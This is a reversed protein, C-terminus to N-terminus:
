AHELKLLYEWHDSEAMINLQLGASHSLEELVDPAPYVWPFEKKKGKWEVQFQVLGYYDSDFTRENPGKEDEFWYAIDSTDAIIVGEQSLLSKMHKLLNLTGQQTQGMGMGNMLLYITDFKGRNFEMIDSHIINEVDRLKMLDCFESSIELATCDFGQKQLWLSHSGAAAGIDLIKGEALNLAHQELPPMSAYDRLFHQANMPDNEQGNIRLSLWEDKGSLFSQKTALALVDQNLLLFKTL